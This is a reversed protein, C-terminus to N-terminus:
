PYPLRYQEYQAAAQFRSMRKRLKLDYKGSVCASIQGRGTRRASRLNSRDCIGQGIFSQKINWYCENLFYCYRSPFLAALLIRRTM